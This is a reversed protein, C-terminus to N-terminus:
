SSYQRLTRRHHGRKRPQSMLYDHSVPRHDFACFNKENRTKTRDGAVDCLTALEIMIGESDREFLVRAAIKMCASKGAGLMKCHPRQRLRRLRAEAFVCPEGTDRGRLAPQLKFHISDLSRGGLEFRLSIPHKDLVFSFRPALGDAPEDWRFAQTPILNM